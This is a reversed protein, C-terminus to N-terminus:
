SKRRSICGGNLFFVLWHLCFQAPVLLLIVYHGTDGCTCSDRICMESGVLSPMIEYATKQKFFFIVCELSGVLLCVNYGFYLFYIINALFGVYCRHNGGCFTDVM